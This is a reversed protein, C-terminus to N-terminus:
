RAALAQCQAEALEATLVGGHLLDHVAPDSM